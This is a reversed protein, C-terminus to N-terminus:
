VTASRRRRLYVFAMVILGLVALVLSQPIPTPTVAAAVLNWTSSGVNGFDDRCGTAGACWAGNSSSDFQTTGDSVIEVNAASPLSVPINGTLGSGTLQGATLSITIKSSTYNFSVFNETNLATGQTYGTLVLTATGM